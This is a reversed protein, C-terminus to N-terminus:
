GDVTMQTGVPPVIAKKIRTQWKRYAEPFLTRGFLQVGFFWGISEVMIYPTLVHYKMDDLM